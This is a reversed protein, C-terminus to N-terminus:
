CCFCAHFWGKSVKERYGQLIKGRLADLKESPLNVRLMYSMKVKEENLLMRLFGHQSKKRRALNFGM